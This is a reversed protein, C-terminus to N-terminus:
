TFTKLDKWTTGDEVCTSTVNTYVPLTRALSMEREGEREREGGRESDRERKREIHERVRQARDRSEIQERQEREARALSFEALFM